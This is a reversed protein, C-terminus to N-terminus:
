VSTEARSGFARGDLLKRSENALEEWVVFRRCYSEDCEYQEVNIAAGFSNTSKTNGVFRFYGQIAAKNPGLEKRVFLAKYRSPIALSPWWRTKTCYKDGDILHTIGVIHTLGKASPPEPQIAKRLETVFDHVEQFTRWGKEM